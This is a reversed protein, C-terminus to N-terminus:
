QNEPETAPETGNDIYRIHKPYFLLPTGIFAIYNRRLQNNTIDLVLAGPTLDMAIRSRIIYPDQRYMVVQRKYVDIYFASINKGHLTGTLAKNTLDGGYSM